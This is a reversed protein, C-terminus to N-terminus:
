KRKIRNPCGGGYKCGRGPRSDRAAHFVRLGDRRGARCTRLSLDERLLTDEHILGSLHPNLGILHPKLGILIRHKQGVALASGLFWRALPQYHTLFQGVVWAISFDREDTPPSLSEGYGERALTKHVGARRVPPGFMVVVMPRM